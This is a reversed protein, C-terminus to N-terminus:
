WGHHGTPRATTPDLQRRAQLIDRGGPRVVKVLPGRGRVPLKVLDHKYTHIAHM